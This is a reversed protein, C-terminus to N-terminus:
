FLGVSAAEARLAPLVHKRWRELGVPYTRPDPHLLAYARATAAFAEGGLARRIAELLGPVSRTREWAGSEIMMEEFSGKAPETDPTIIVPKGLTSGIYAATGPDTVIVRAMDYSAIPTVGGRHQSPHPGLVVSYGADKIARAIDAGREPSTSMNFGKNRMPNITTLLAVDVLPELGQQMVADLMPTGGWLSGEIRKTAPAWPLVSQNFRGAHHAWNGKDALGHNVFVAYEVQPRHFHSRGHTYLNIAGEVPQRVFPIDLAESVSGWVQGIATGDVADGHRSVLYFEAM